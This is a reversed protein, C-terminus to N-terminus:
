KADSTEQQEIFPPLLDLSRSSQDVYNIYVAWIVCDREREQSALPTTRLKYWAHFM